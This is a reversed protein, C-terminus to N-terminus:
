KPAYGFCGHRSLEGMFMGAVENCLKSEV